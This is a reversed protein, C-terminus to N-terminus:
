QKNGKELFIKTKKKKITINKIANNDSIADYFNNQELLQNPFTNNLMMIESELPTLELNNESNRQFFSKNSSDFNKQLYNPMPIIKLPNKYINQCTNYSEYNENNENLIFKEKNSTFDDENNKFKNM